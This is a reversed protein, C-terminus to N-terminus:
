PGAAAGDRAPERQPPQVDADALTVVDRVIERDAEEGHRNNHEAAVRIGRRM